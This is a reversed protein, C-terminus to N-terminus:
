SACAGRSMSPECAISAPVPGRSVSLECAREVSCVPVHMHDGVVGVGAQGRVNKDHEMYAGSKLIVKRDADSPGGCHQIGKLDLEQEIGEEGIVYVQACPM